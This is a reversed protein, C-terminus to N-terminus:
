QLLEETCPALQNPCGEDQMRLSADDERLCADRDTRERPNAQWETNM